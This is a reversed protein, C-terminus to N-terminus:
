TTTIKKLIVLDQGYDGIGNEFDLINWNNNWNQRIYKETHFARGYQPDVGPYQVTKELYPYKYHYTGVEDLKEPTMDTLKDTMTQKFNEIGSVTILALGGPKLIRNLEKLWLKQFDLSLHTWVSISYVIDFYNNHYDLSQNNHISSTTVNPFTKSIYDMTPKNVDCAFLNCKGYFNQLVRGTGAGFDLIKLNKIPINQHKTIIRELHKYVSRGGKVFKSITLYGSQIRLKLPPIPLKYNHVIKYLGATNFLSVVKLIIKEYKFLILVFKRKLYLGLDFKNMVM